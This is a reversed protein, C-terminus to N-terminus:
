PDGQSEEEESDSYGVLAAAPRILEERERKNGGKTCAALSEESTAMGVAAGAAVPVAHSSMAAATLALPVPPPHSASSGSATASVMHTIRMGRERRVQLLQLRQAEAQAPAYQSGFIGSHAVQLRRKAARADSARRAAHLPVARAAAVDAPHEAQLAVRIGKAENAATENWAQHRQSRHARRLQRNAEYDDHWRDDRQDQLQILWPKRQVAAGSKELKYFPNASRRAAEDADLTPEVGLQEADDPSPEALRTAGEVIVYDANKPDTHIEIWHPNTRQCTRSTGDECHCLMRFAYISSSFYKGITRKEADYRVGKGIHNGCGTCRVNFPMEFRIVLVGKTALHKARDRLPHAKWKEEKSLKRGGGVAHEARSTKRPDWDPPHYFNDARAAALSSM